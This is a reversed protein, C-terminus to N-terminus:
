PSISYSDYQCILLDRTLIYRSAPPQALKRWCLGSWDLTPSEADQSFTM